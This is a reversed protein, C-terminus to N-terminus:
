AAPEHPRGPASGAVPAAGGVPGPARGSVRGRASGEVPGAAAGSAPAPAPRAALVAAYHALLEDGISDWGRGLVSARARLRMTERLVPDALLSSVQDALLDPDAGSWLWGNEGHRVLDLPGGTAPAIVPVGSALAEQVAQCFTEEAGPHVFVDFSAYLESLEHGRRFGLFTADPLRREVTSRSPGDGVVVLRVGALRSVPRLLHVRKEPALRGVYGVIAEGGPALVRRLAENRHAPSFAAVDVGRGWRAVPAIGHRRLLWVTATSPALTLACLGHVRRLHQWVFSRIPRLHYCSLYSALDTQFVAVAPIGLEAAARAGAYGLLAPSALHVLDAGALVSTLSVSPRGIHVSRYMPPRFSPVRVVPVGRFTAPGPEPAVVLVQHGARRLHELVRTVSNTVGNVVPHFTEAVVAVRVVRHQCPRVVLGHHPPFRCM